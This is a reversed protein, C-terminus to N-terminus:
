RESMSRSPKRRQHGLATRRLKGSLSVPRGLLSSLREQADYLEIDVGNSIADWGM